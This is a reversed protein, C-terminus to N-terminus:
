WSNDHQLVGKFISKAPVTSCALSVMEVFLVVMELPIYVGMYVMYASLHLIVFWILLCVVNM